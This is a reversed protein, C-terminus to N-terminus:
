LNSVYLLLEDHENRNMNTHYLFLIDNNTMNLTLLFILVNQKIRM